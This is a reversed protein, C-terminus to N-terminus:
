VKKVKLSLTVRTITDADDIKFTLIDGASISTTWDTLTTLQNKAASSIILKAASGVISDASTPPFNAYTDKWIDATVSGSTDALLTAATITCDFPVEIHAKEGSSIVDGGADIVFEIAALLDAWEPDNSGAKLYQGASGINLKNFASSGRYIIDGRVANALAAINDDDETGAGSITANDILNHLDTKNGSDPLSGGRSITYTRAM